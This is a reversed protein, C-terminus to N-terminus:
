FKTLGLAEREEKTLKALASERAKKREKDKFETYRRTEDEVKHQHWWATLRKRSIGCERWDVGEIVSELQETDELYKMIGCLSVRITELEKAEERDEPYPVGGDTCPM